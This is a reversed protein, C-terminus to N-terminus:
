LNKELQNLLVRFDKPYPAIVEKYDGSLMKFKVRYAHLALRHILPHEEEFKGLKYNRKISSLFFPKGGYVLDGTIPAGLFALHVRIQHMKGTQPMCRILTHTKFARMSNFITVSRKGYRPDVRAVGKSIISIPKDLRLDKFSHLGESVAHYEKEVTRSEFQRSMFRYADQNKAIILVGSTEKDLRHCLQSGAYYRKSLKLINIDENRDELSSIFPPKDIVIHDDDEYLILSEFPPIRNKM